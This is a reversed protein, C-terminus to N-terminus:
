TRVRIEQGARIVFQEAPTQMVPTLGAKPLTSAREALKLKLREEEDFRATENQLMFAILFLGLSVAGVPLAMTWAPAFAAGSFTVIFGLVLASISITLFFKPLTRM